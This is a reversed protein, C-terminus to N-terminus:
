RAFATRNDDMGALYRQTVAYCECALSELRPRDRVRIKGRVYEICGMRQLKQAAMGVNVRRLGLLGALMEQTLLFETSALRDSTMLLQVACRQLVNHARGCAYFQAICGLFAVVYRQMMRRVSEHQAIRPVASAALKLCAGSGVVCARMSSHLGGLIASVGAMGESGVTFVPVSSGDRMRVDIALVATEPFYLHDITDGVEYLTSGANLRVRVFDAGISRMVHAPISSLLQNTARNEHSASETKIM